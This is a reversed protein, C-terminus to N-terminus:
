VPLEEQVERSETSAESAGGAGESRETDAPNDTNRKNEVTEQSDEPAYHVGFHEFIGDAHLESAGEPHSMAEIVNSVDGYKRRLHAPLTEFQSKVNAMACAQAHLPTDDQDGFVLPRQNVDPIQGTQTFRRVIVNIDCEDRFSQKTMSPMDSFEKQLRKRPRHM